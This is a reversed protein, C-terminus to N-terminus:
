KRKGDVTQGQPCPCREHRRRGAYAAFRGSSVLRPVPRVSPHMPMPTTPLKAGPKLRWVLVPGPRWSPEAGAIVCPAATSPAEHDISVKRAADVLWSFRFRGRVYTAVDADRRQQGHRCTKPLRQGGLPRSANRNLYRDCIRESSLTFADLTMTSRDISASSPTHLRERAPVM